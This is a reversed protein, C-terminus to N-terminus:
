YGASLPPMERLISSIQHRIIPNSENDIDFVLNKLLRRNNMKHLAILALQRFKENEHSAYIEYIDDALEDVEIKDSHKIIMMMASAQLGQHDSKVAMIVGDNLKSVDVNEEAAFGNSLFLFVLLATIITFLRSM